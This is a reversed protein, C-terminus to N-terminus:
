VIGEGLAAIEEKLTAVTEKADVLAKELKGEERELGKKKDDAHDFSKECYEKKAEDDVQEEKMLVVMDDIMKLVKEFGVKKGRLALMIFDIRQRNSKKGLKTEQLLALARTRLNDESVEVQM